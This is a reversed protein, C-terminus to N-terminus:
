GPLSVFLIFSVSVVDKWENERFSKATIDFSVWPSTLLLGKLKGGKGDGGKLEIRPIEVMRSPHPHAIHSLLAVALNAGASDGSLLISSPSYNLKHLVHNLLSAAQQLQRPYPSTPALDPPKLKPKPKPLQHPSPVFSTSISPRLNGYSLFLCSVSKGQSSLLTIIQHIFEFMGPTPPLTYGGGLFDDAEEKM